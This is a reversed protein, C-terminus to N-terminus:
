EASKMARRIERFKEYTMGTTSVIEQYASDVMNKVEPNKYSNSMQAQIWYSFFGAYTQNAVKGEKFDFLITKYYAEFEDGIHKDHLSTGTNERFFKKKWTPMDISGGKKMSLFIQYNNLVHTLEHYIASKYTEQDEPSLAEFAPLEIVGGYNHEDNDLLFSGALEAREQGVKHEVVRLNIDPNNKLEQYLSMNDLIHRLRPSFIQETSKEATPKSPLTQAEIQHVPGALAAVLAGAHMAKKVIKEVKEKVGIKNIKPGQEM